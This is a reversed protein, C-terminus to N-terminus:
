LNNGINVVVVVILLLRLFIVVDVIIIRITAVMSSASQVPSRSITITHSYETVQLSNLM